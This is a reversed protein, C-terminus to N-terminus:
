TEKTARKKPAVLEYSTAILERAHSLTAQDSITVSVWGYRGVYAAREIHPLQTLIDADDPTAKVTAGLGGESSGLAAFMKNGVKYVIDGWPYDEWAGDFGLCHAQLEAAYPHDPLPVPPYKATM